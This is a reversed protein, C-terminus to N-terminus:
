TLFETASANSQSALLTQNPNFLQDCLFKIGPSLLNMISTEM